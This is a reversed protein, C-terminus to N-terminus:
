DDADLDDRALATADLLKDLFTAVLALQDDDFQAIVPATRRGLTAMLRGIEAIRPGTATLVIRRRDGPDPRREVFGARELRDVLATVAGTTLGTLRAIHAPHVPAERDILDLYKHDTVSLGLRQGLATHLMVIEYSLRRGLLDGIESRESM